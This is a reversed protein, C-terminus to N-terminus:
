FAYHLQIRAFRAPQIEVPRRLNFSPGTIESEQIKYGSNAVNLIDLVAELTGVPLRFKREFRLNGNVVGEARNGSLPNFLQTGRSTADMVIPGQDLGTVLLQRAFVLGDLYDVIGALEIGWPM